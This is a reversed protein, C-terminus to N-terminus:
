AVRRLRPRAAGAVGLSAYVEGLRALAQEPSHQARVTERGAAGLAAALRPERLLRRMARLLDLTDGPAVLLGNVGHKVVDPIGGVASAVVPVGAAMAELVPLGFGEEARSPFLLLDCGRLARAVEAPSVGHLYRDPLLLRREAEELPWTSIRLLRAAVGGERLRRLAALATPVDKVPAPFIGPVAVWPRRRPRRRPRPRFLPDLPPPVVRAARGFRRGVLEALHPSVTLTPLPRAYASEIEALVPALHALGGEYGQCFHALPGAALEAARAITTWYTAVVLDQAPLRPPGLSADIWALEAGRAGAAADFWAPRAGDAVVTTRHGLAALLGAHQAIVKNGGNLEPFPLVYAIRM